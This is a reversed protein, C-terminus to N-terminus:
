GLSTPIKRTTTRIKDKKKKKKRQLVLTWLCGWTAHLQLESPMKTIRDEGNNNEEMEKIDPTIEGKKSEEMMLKKERDNGESKGIKKESRQMFLNHPTKEEMEKKTAQKKSTNPKDEIENSLFWFGM